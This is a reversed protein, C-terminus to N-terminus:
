RVREVKLTYHLTEGGTASSDLPPTVATGSATTSRGRALTKVARVRLKTTALRLLSADIEQDDCSLVGANRNYYLEYTGKKPLLALEAGAPRTAEAAFTCHWTKQEPTFTCVSPDDPPFDPEPAWSGTTESTSTAAPSTLLARFRLRGYSVIPSAGSRASLGASAVFHHTETSSGDCGLPPPGGDRVVTQENRIDGHLSVKYLKPKAAWAAPACCAVAVAAVLVLSSRFRPPM